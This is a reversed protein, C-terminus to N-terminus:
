TRRSTACASRRSARTSTPKGAAGPESAQVPLGRRRARHLARYQRARRTVFHRHGAHRAAAVDGRLQELLAFGDMEPMEIDLLLLDIADSRLKELAVRGNEALHSGIDRCSSAARSCCATSKITTPSSCAAATRDAMRRGRTGAAVRAYEEALAMSTARRRTPGARPRSSSSARWSASRARESTNANSKLSHAARRFREANGRGRAGRM